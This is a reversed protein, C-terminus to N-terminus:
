SEPLDATQQEILLFSPGTYIQVPSFLEFGEFRLLLERQVVLRTGPKDGPFAATIINKKTKVNGRVKHVTLM